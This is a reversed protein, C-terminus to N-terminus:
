ESPGEELGSLLLRFETVVAVGSKRGVRIEMSDIFLAPSAQELTAIWAWPVASEETSVTLRGRMEHVGDIVPQPEALEINRVRLGLPSSSVSANVFERVAAQALGTTRQNWADRLLQERREELAGVMAPWYDQQALSRSEAIDGAARRWELQELALRDDMWLLLYVLLILGIAWGGLRLLPSAQWQQSFDQKLRDIMM